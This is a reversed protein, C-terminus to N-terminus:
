FIMSLLIFWGTAIVLMLIGLPTAIKAFEKMSITNHEKEAFAMALINAPSGIPFIFGGINVGVILAIPLLPSIYAFQVAIPAVVASIPINDIVASLLGPIWIMFALAIIENDGIMAGVAVAIFDIIGTIDLAAVLGFLGVLFFITGWNVRQLIDDVKERSGILLISAVLIAIMATEFGSEHGLTFVLVLVFLAIISGYFDKQSRIMFRSNVLLIEDVADQQSTGLFIEFYRLLIPISVLFLILSLPMLSIFLLGPDLGTEEAIVLNPVAGVISPISAFNCVVAESILFPKFDIELSKCLEISLPAMILMTSTTDLALSIVFVFALFAIYLQRTNAHTPRTLQIALFQFMGTGSAITVIIMMATVFLVIDWEIHEVISSFTGAGAAWLIVGVLGMGLLSTATRNVKESSIVLYTAIFVVLVLGSVFDIGGTIQM